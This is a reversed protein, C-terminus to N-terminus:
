PIYFSNSSNLIYHVNVKSQEMRQMISDQILERKINDAVFIRVPIIDQPKERLNENVLIKVEFDHKGKNLFVDALMILRGKRIFSGDIVQSYVQEGDIAAIIKNGIQFVDKIVVYFECSKDERLNVQWEQESYQDLYEDRKFSVPIAAAPVAFDRPLTGVFIIEKFEDLTDSIVREQGLSFVILPNDGALEILKSDVFDNREGIVLIHNAIAENVQGCLCIFFVLIVCVIKTINRSM